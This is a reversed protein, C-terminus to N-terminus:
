KYFRGELDLVLKATIALKNPSRRAAVHTIAARAGAVAEAAGRASGSASCRSCSSGGEFWFLIWAGSGKNDLRKAGSGRPRRRRVDGLAEGVSAIHDKISIDPYEGAYVTTAFMAAVLLSLIKKM